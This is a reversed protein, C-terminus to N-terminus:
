REGGGDSSHPIREIINRTEFVIRAAKKLQLGVAQLHGHQLARRALTLANAAKVLYGRALIAPNAQIAAPRRGSPKTIPRAIMNSAGRHRKLWQGLDVSADPASLWGFTQCAEKGRPYQIRRV